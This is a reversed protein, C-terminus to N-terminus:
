AGTAPFQRLAALIDEREPDYEEAVQEITTGGARKGVVLEVPVRTGAIVRKGFRIADDVSIRPAIEPM